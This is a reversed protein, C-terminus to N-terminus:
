VSMMLLKLLWILTSSFKKLYGSAARSRDISLLGSFVIAFWSVDAGRVFARNGM